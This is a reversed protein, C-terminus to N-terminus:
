IVVVRSGEPAFRWLAIADAEAQRICGHSRPTGLEARTQLPSGLKTPISHFGIAAREGHAFRVFYEMVGSDDIGVAWRSRSWVAYSGPQLNDEMSGSVLYSRRVSGNERILWVRQDAQSFVARRGVGSNAPAVAQEAAPEATPDGELAAAPVPTEPDPTTSVPSILRLASEPAARGDAVSPATTIVGLGALVSVATVTLATLAMMIRGYRLRVSRHRSM